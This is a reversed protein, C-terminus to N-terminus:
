IDVFELKCLQPQVWGLKAQLKLILVAIVVKHNLGDYLM